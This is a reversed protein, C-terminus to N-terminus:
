PYSKPFCSDIHAYVCCQTFATSECDHLHGLLHAAFEVLNVSVLVLTGM